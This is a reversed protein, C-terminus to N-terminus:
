GDVPRFCCYKLQNGNRWGTGGVGFEGAKDGQRPAAGGLAFVGGVELIQAEAQAAAQDDIQCCDALGDVLGGDVGEVASELIAQPDADVLLTKCELVALSAALNIATITKGVGRKQNAIAIIKGM